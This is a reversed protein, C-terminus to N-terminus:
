GTCSRNDWCLVAACMGKRVIRMRACEAHVRKGQGVNGASSRVPRKDKGAAGSAARQMGPPASRCAVPQRRFRRGIPSVDYTPMAYATITIICFCAPLHFLYRTAQLLESPPAIVHKCTQTHSRTRTSSGAFAWGLLKAFYGIILM